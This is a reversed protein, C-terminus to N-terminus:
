NAVIRVAELEEETAIVGGPIENYGTCCCCCMGSIKRLVSDLPDLSRMWLPLFNWNRLFAPLWEKARLNRQMLNVIVIAALALAVPITVSFFVGTGALSLALVIAPILFFMM